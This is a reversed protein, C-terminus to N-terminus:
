ECIKSFGHEDRVIEIVHDVIDKFYDDHTVIYITDFYQRINELIKSVSDKYEPDLSSFPEDLVFINSKPLTTINLLAVRLTLATICKEMGSCLEIRRPKNKEHKFLIEISKGDDTSILEIEFNVGSSLIRKIQFNIVDLNKAIIQKSIGDKSTALLFYDYVQYSTKIEEYAVKDKELQEITKQLFGEKKALDYLEDSIIGVSVEMSNYALEAESLKSQAKYEQLRSVNEQIKINQKDLKELLELKKKENEEVDKLLCCNPNSICPYKKVNIIKTEISSIKDLISNKEHELLLSKDEIKSINKEKIQIKSSLDKLKDSLSSHEKKKDKILKRVQDLEDISLKLETDINKSEYLKLQTKIQKFDEKALKNKEEFIEIDFYKGILKQRETGGADILGLLQWQPAISTDMFDKPNGFVKRIAKDTDQRQEAEKNEERGDSYQVKYSVETKGQYIPDGQKKGGKLYVHTGRSITHLDQGVQIELQSGCDEKNENIILDNKVVGKKSIGNFINYCPIDVIFSSNHTPIFKRTILFLHSQNDVVLCQVLKRKCEKIDVIFRRSSAGNKEFKINNNKRSLCFVKKNTNFYIRYKKSIFKGYLTANGESITAKYGLSCALECFQEALKKNTNCFEIQGNKDCYGDTDLLGALLAERDEISSELYISPIHKNKILNLKSLKQKLGRICYAIDKNKCNHKIITEGLKTLNDIIEQDACTFGSNASTGDGLWCGLVYPHIPLQKKPYEVPSCVDVSWENGVHVKDTENRWNLTRKLNRTTLTQYIKQKKQRSFHDEVTWLHEADCIVKEGDSFEVEFCERNKYIPSKGIVKTPKGDDGFVVDGVNIDKIKKWGSVTPIETDLDLAKGTGNKGFVGVIGNYKSFDFSNNEGYSFLNYFTLKKFKYQINRISDEERFSGVYKSNLSIIKDLVDKSLNYSEFFSTILKEQVREDELDEVKTENIEDIIIKSSVKEIESFDIDIPEYLFKISKEIKNKESTTLARSLIRIRSKKQFALNTPVELTEDLQINYFPCVNPLKVFDVLHKRKSEINWFLYGKNLDEGYNQQILSGPYAAKYNSDLFQTKHIDGLLLYDVISLFNKLKYPCDEVIQGNQLKAGQIMGHFLGINIKSQDVDKQQPWQSDDDFCSFIVFNIYENFKFIGSEKFYFVNPNNLAKIIPSLSDMRTLNNLVGDHNGPIIITPAIDSTKKIFDVMMDVWEPSIHSKEHGLDGPIVVVDPKKELISSYFNQFHERYEKHRKFTRIQIDSAHVIKIM